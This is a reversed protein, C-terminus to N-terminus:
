WQDGLQWKFSVLVHVHTYSNDFLMLKWVIVYPILMVKTFFFFRKEQAFIDWIVFLVHVHSSNQFFSQFNDFIHKFEFQIGYCQIITQGRTLKSQGSLNRPTVSETRSTERGTMLSSRAGNDWSMWCSRPTKESSLSGQCTEWYHRLQKSPKRQRFDGFYM